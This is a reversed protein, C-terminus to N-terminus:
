SPVFLICDKKDKLGPNGANCMGLKELLKISRANEPITIAVIKNLQLKEYGYTLCGEAAEFAYGYGTYEPLLAFGIDVNELAPRKILGCVGIPIKSTKIEVLYLGFGNEKYSSIYKEKMHILADEVTLINRDGIFKIWSPENFLKYMFSADGEELHRLVLRETQIVIM